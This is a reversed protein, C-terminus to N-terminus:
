SGFWREELSIISFLKNLNDLILPFEELIIYILCLFALFVPFVIAFDAKLMYRIADPM